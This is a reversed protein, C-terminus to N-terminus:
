CHHPREKDLDVVVWSQITQGQCKKVRKETVSSETRRWLHHIGFLLLLLFLLFFCVFGWYPGLLSFAQTQSQLQVRIKGGRLGHCCRIFLSLPFSDMVTRLAFLLELHRSVTLARLFHPVCPFPYSALSGLPTLESDLHAPRSLVATGTCPCSTLPSSRAWRGWRQGSLQAEPHTSGM